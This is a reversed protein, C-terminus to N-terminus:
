RAQWWNAYFWNGIQAPRMGTWVPESQVRWHALNWQLSCLRIQVFICLTSRFLPQFHLFPLHYHTGIKLPRSHYIPPHVRVDMKAGVVKKCLLLFQPRTMDTSAPRAAVGFYRASNKGEKKKLLKKRGGLSDASSMKPRWSAFCFTPSFFFDHALRPGRQHSARAMKKLKSAEEQSGADGGPSLMETLTAIHARSCANVGHEIMNEWLEKVTWVTGSDRQFFRSNKLFNNWLKLRQNSKCEILFFM